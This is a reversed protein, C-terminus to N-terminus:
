CDEWRTLPHHSYREPFLDELTTPKAVPFAEAYHSGAIADTKKDKKVKYAWDNGAIYTCIYNCKGESNWGRGRYEFRWGEIEPLPDIDLPTGDERHTEIKEWLAYYEEPLFYAVKSDLIQTLKKEKPNIWVLGHDFYVNDNEGQKWEGLKYGERTPLTLGHTIHVLELYFSLRHKFKFDFKGIWRGEYRVGYFKDCKEDDGWGKVKWKHMPDPEPIGPMVKKVEALTPLKIKEKTEM